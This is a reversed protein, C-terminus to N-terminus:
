AMLSTMVAIVVAGLIAVSSQAWAAGLCEGLDNVGEDCAAFLEDSALYTYDQFGIATARDVDGLYNNLCCGYIDKGQQVSTKCDAPCELTTNQDVPAPCNDIGHTLLDFNSDVNANVIRIYVCYENNPGRGCQVALLYKRRLLIEEYEADSVSSYCIELFAFTADSCQSDCVIGVIARLECDDDTVECTVGNIYDVCEKVDSRAYFAMKEDDTPQYSCQYFSFEDEPTQDADYQRKARLQDRVNVPHRPLDPKAAVASLVAAFAIFALAYLKM